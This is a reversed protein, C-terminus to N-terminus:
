KVVAGADPGPTQNFLATVKVRLAVCPWVKWTDTSRGPLGVMDLQDLFRRWQAMVDGEEDATADRSSVMVGKVQFARDDVPRAFSVAAQGNSKLDDMFAPSAAKSVYVLLHQRDDEVKVATVRAGNPELRENRTGLHIALGQELFETLAQDLM